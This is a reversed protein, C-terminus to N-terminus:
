RVAVSLHVVPPLPPPPNGSVRVSVPLGVSTKVSVPPDRLAPSPRSPSPLDVTYPFPVRRRPLNVAARVTFSITCPAELPGLHIRRRIPLDVADRATRPPDYPSPHPRRRVPSTCPM